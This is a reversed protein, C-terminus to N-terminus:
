KPCLPISPVRSALPTISPVTMAAVMLTWMVVFSPMAVGRTVPMLGMSGAKSLLHLGHAERLSCSPLWSPRMHSRSSQTGNPPAAQKSNM